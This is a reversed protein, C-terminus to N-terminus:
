PLTKPKSYILNILDIMENIVVEKNNYRDILKALDAKLEKKTKVPPKNAEDLMTAAWEVNDLGMLSKSM